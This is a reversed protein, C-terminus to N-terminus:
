LRGTEWGRGYVRWLQLVRWTMALPRTNAPGATTASPTIVARGRGLVLVPRAQWVSLWDSRRMAQYPRLFAWPMRLGARRSLPLVSYIGFRHRHGAPCMCCSAFSSIGLSERRSIPWVTATGIIPWRLYDVAGWSTAPRMGSPRLHAPVNRAATRACGGCARSRSKSVRCWSSITTPRALRSYYM